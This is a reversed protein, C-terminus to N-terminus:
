VDTPYYTLKVIAGLNMSNPIIQVLTSSSLLYCLIIEDKVISFFFLTMCIINYMYMTATETLNRNEISSYTYNTM